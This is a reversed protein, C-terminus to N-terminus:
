SKKTKRIFATCVILCAASILMIVLYRYFNIDGTKPVFGPRDPDPVSDPPQWEVMFKWDIMTLMDSYELPTNKDLVLAVQIKDAHGPTYEGLYIIDQLNILSGPYSKGLATGDYILDTGHFVKMSIYELLENLKANQWRPIAQMYLDYPEASRNEIELTHDYSGGPLMGLRSMFWYEDGGRVPTFEMLGNHEEFYLKHVKVSDDYSSSFDDPDFGLTQLYGILSQEITSASSFVESIADSTAQVTNMTVTLSYRMDDYSNTPNSVTYTEWLKSTDNWVTKQSLIPANLNPNMRVSDVVLPTTDGRGLIGVYYLTYNGAADPTENILLWKGQAEAASNVTPLSLGLSPIQSKGSALVVVDGGWAIQAAFEEGSNGNFTLPYHVANRLVTRVWKQNLQIKVYVPVSGTNKVSVNKDVNIGPLWDGPSTFEDLLETNYRGTQFENVAQLEQTWYAFTTLVMVSILLAAIATLMRIRKVYCQM